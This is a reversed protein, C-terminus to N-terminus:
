ADPTHEVLTWTSDELRVTPHGCLRQWLTRTIPLVAPPLTQGTQFFRRPVQAQPAGCEWLGTQPCRQGSAAQTGIPLRSPEDPEVPAAAQPEAKPLPWGTKPDLGKERAMENIREESPLPPPIDSEWEKVWKITGDWPPLKAPPLPVIEDLEEVTPNLYEYGDLLKEIMDYRRIREEDKPFPMYFSRNDPQLGNFAGYLKDAAMRNGAKLALQYFRRAEEFNGGPEKSHAFIRLYDGTDYAAKAHGQEGACRLMELGIKFPVPNTIGFSSLEDGVYYQADPDGLDAAKRIYQLAAKSDHQVGYGKNLLVGMDYYGMPIGQDIMNQAIEVPMSILDKALSKGQRLMIALNHGAKYHGWGYAIRYLREITPNESANQTLMNKKEIWRARKFLQDAEPNLLPLKDKEYACTFELQAKLTDPINLPM